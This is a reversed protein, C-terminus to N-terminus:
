DADGYTKLDRRPPQVEVAVPLDPADDVMEAGAVVEPEPLHEVLTDMDAVLALVADNLAVPDGREGMQRALAGFAFEAKLTALSDVQRLHPELPEFWESYAAHVKRRAEVRKGTSWANQAEQLAFRLSDARQRPAPGEPLPAPGSERECGVALTLTSLLVLLWRTPIM